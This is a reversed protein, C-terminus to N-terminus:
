VSPDIVADVDRRFAVPEVPPLRRWRKVLTERDLGPHRVPRLEAVPTGARTVTLSEGALVRDVVKGGQNRLDRISVTSMVRSHKVAHSM